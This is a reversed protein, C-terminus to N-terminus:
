TILGDGKEATDAENLSEVVIIERQTGESQRAHPVCLYPLREM